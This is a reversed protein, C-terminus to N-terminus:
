KKGHSKFFHYADIHKKAIEPWEFRKMLSQADGSKELLKKTIKEPDLATLIKFFEVPSNVYTLIKNFEAPTQPGQTTYVLLGYKLVALLSGRRESAGDPFPLYAMTQMSLEKEVENESLNILWQVPLGETAKKLDSFYESNKDLIQGIIKIQYDLHHEKLLVALAMVQEIGKKPRILGFYVIENGNRHENSFNNVSSGINAGIPIVFPKRTFWPFISKFYQCEFQSSFILDSKISFPLLFMKRIPHFQSAEHVTIVTKYKLSLLQPVIGYGYGISPFQIHIIDPSSEDIKSCINKFHRLSWDINALVEVKLNQNRLALVLKETYDGVGCRQPPYTGSIM